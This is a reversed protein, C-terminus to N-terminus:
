AEHVNGDADVFYAKLIAPHARAFAIGREIGLAVLTTSYGEADISRRAVATAGAADTVVPFGTAPDLIHQYLVGDREFCREYVGSTVASADRVAVAGVIGGKERPDQLGIRWPSGDPKSGSAMVNGGLNVIFSELGKARMLATLRDAIWGKAIGGADVAAQADAIRALWRPGAPAGTEQWVEVKRWDVHRLAEDIRARDPIVGEHFNWLRVVSGMTIDFRGESDACYRLAELLLEATDAGITVPQGEAANLRAIDSHPLTRSLSREFSRCATRAADFAAACREPEGFAQLTIVTNFAYFLHTMMGADDPGRTESVDELPVPDYSSPEDMAGTYPM